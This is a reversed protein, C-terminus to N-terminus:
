IPTILNLLLLRYISSDNYFLKEVNLNLPEYKKFSVVM